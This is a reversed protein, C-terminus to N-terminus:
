MAFIIVMGGNEFNFHINKILMKYLKCSNIQWIFLYFIAIASWLLCM